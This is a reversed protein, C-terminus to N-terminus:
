LEVLSGIELVRDPPIQFFKTAPQSNRAMFAFLHVRWRAMGPRNTAIMTDRGLFFTVGELSPVIAGCGILLRPVDPQEMFGYRAVIRVFGAELNETTIRRDDTVRAADDTVITLLVVHQHVVRNHLFNHLLSPPTGDRLSTM